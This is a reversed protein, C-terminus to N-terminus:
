TGLNLTIAIEGNQSNMFQCTSPRSRVGCVAKGLRAWEKARVLVWRERPLLREFLLCSLVGHKWFSAGGFRDFESIGNNCICKCPKEIGVM